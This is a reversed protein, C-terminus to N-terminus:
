GKMTSSEKNSTYNISYGTLTFEKEHSEARRCRMSENLIKIVGGLKKKKTFGFLIKAM